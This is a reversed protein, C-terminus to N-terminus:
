PLELEVAVGVHDSTRGEPEGSPPWIQPQGRAALGAVCIHDISARRGSTALAVPDSEHGTLCRLGARELVEGLAEKAAASQYYAFHALDQNLDGALIFPAGPSAERWAAWDRAQAELAACFAVAGAAPQDGWARGRWPLVSGAVIVPGTPLRLLAGASRTPDGVAQLPELPHRSWIGVWAEAETLEPAPASLVGRAGFRELERHTETLIWLEAGVRDMWARQRRHRESDLRKLRELNWTGVRLM